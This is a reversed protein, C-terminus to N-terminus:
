LFRLRGDKQLEAFKRLLKGRMRRLIVDAPLECTPPGSDLACFFTIRLSARARTLTLLSHALKDLECHDVMYPSAQITIDSLNRCASLPQLIVPLWQLDATLHVDRLATLGSLGGQAQFLASSLTTCLQAYPVVMGLIPCTCEVDPKSGRERLMSSFPGILLYDFSLQLHEVSSACGRLLSLVDSITDTDIGRLVLDTIHPLTFASSLGPLFSPISRSDMTLSTLPLIAKADGREIPQTESAVYRAIYLKRLHAVGTVANMLEVFGSPTIGEGLECFLSLSAIPRCLEILSTRSDFSLDEWTLDVIELTHLATLDRIRITSLVEDLFPIESRDSEDAMYMTAPGAQRYWHSFDVGEEFRITRVLPLITSSPDCLLSTSAPLGDERATITVTRFLHSRAIVSWVRCVLSWSSLSASDETSSLIAELIELPIQSYGHIISTQPKPSM